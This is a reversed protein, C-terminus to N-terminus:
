EKEEKVIVPVPYSRKPLPLQSVGLELSTTEAAEAESGGDKWEFIVGEWSDTATCNWILPKWKYPTTYNKPSETKNANVWDTGNYYKLTIDLNRCASVNISYTFSDGWSVVEPNIEPDKFVVVLIPGIFNESKGGPYVFTFKSHKGIYKDIRSKNLSEFPRINRWRLTETEGATFCTPKNEGKLIWVDEVPDHVRLSIDFCISDNSTATVIYDFAKTDGSMYYDAEENGIPKSPSSFDVSPLVAEVKKPLSPGPYPGLIVNIIGDEYLFRYSSIGGWSQEIFPTVTFPHGRAEGNTTFIWTQNKEDKVEWTNTAPQYIELTVIVRRLRSSEPGTINLQYTFTDTWNGKVPSVSCDVTPKIIPVPLDGGSVVVGAISFVMALVLALPLVKKVSLKGGGFYSESKVRRKIDEYQTEKNVNGSRTKMGRRREGFVNVLKMKRRKIYLVWRNKGLGKEMQIIEIL